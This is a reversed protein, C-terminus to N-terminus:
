KASNWVQDVNAVLNVIILMDRNELSYFNEIFETIGTGLSICGGSSRKTEDTTGHLYFSGRGFTQNQASPQLPIRYTGWGAGPTEMKEIDSHAALYVGSPLSGIYPIAEFDGGQCSYAGSFSPKVIYVPKDGDCVLLMYGNFLGILNGDGVYPVSFGFEKNQYADNLYTINELYKSDPVSFGIPCSDTDRYVKVANACATLNAKIKAKGQLDQEKYRASLEEKRLLCVSLAKKEDFKAILSTFKNTVGVFDKSTGIQALSQQCATLLRSYLMKIQGDVTSYICTNKTDEDLLEDLNDLYYLKGGVELVVIKALKQERAERLRMMNSQYIVFGSGDDALCPFIFFLFLSVLLTLKKM